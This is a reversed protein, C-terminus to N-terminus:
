QGSIGHVLRLRGSSLSSVAEDSPLARVGFEGSACFPRPTAMPLRSAQSTSTMAVWAVSRSPRERGSVCVRDTGIVRLVIMSNHRSTQRGRKTLRERAKEAGKISESDYPLSATTRIRGIGTFDADISPYNALVRPERGGIDQGLM